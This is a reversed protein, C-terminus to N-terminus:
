AWTNMYPSSKREEKGESFKKTSERSVTCRGGECELERWSWTNLLVILWNPCHRLDLHSCARWDCGLGSVLGLLSRPLCVWIVRTLEGAIDRRSDSGFSLAFGFLVRHRFSHTLFHLFKGKFFRHIMVAHSVCCNNTERKHILQLIESYILINSIIFVYSAVPYDGGYDGLGLINIFAPFFDACSTVGRWLNLESILLSLRLLTRSQSWASAYSILLTLWGSIVNWYIM